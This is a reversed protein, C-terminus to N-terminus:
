GTPSVAEKPRPLALVLDPDDAVLEAIRARVAGPPTKPRGHACRAAEEVTAVAESCFAEIWGDDLARELDREIRTRQSARWFAGSPLTGREPHVGAPSFEADHEYAVKADSVQARITIPRLHPGLEVTVRHSAEYRGQHKVAAFQFVRPEDRYRTVTRTREVYETREKTVERTRTEDRYRTVPRSRRCLGTRPPRCSDLREEYATFPVRETYTETALYPVVVPETYTELAEYPVRETWSRSLETPTATFVTSVAGDVEAAARAPATPSFWVSRELAAAVARRVEDHEEPPTGAVLGRVDIGSVVIPRPMWPPMPGGVEKCYSAVLELSFPQGEAARTAEACTRAGAAAIAAELEARVSALEKRGLVASWGGVLRRGALARGRETEARVGTRATEGVWAVMAAARARRPADVADAEVRDATELAVVAARMAAPVDSGARAREFEALAEDVLGREAAILRAKAQADNPDKRLLEEYLEAAKRYDGRSLADDARGRLTTCGTALALAAAAIFWRSRPANRFAVVLRALFGFFRPSRLRM